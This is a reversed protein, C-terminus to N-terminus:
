YTLLLRDTVEEGELTKGNMQLRKLMSRGVNVYVEREFLGNPIPLEIKKRGSHKTGDISLAIYVNRKKLHSILDILNELTFSQAGYLIGQSDSYPPDCYILDGPKAMHMAEEYDINIFTTGQIRKHWINVRDSFSQPSIPKHPGCPTSMFGDAQRFRVIGGYCSRSLFLLDAGNPNQNYALKIKEYEEVKEGSMLEHWRESYWLRVREPDTKLTMWIEMLPEFKDSGIANNPALTGLVAGSGLFPEIYTRYKTPFFSIIEHAFRQKNGVWKLLQKRFPTIIGRDEFLSLQLETM